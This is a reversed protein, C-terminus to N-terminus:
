ANRLFLLQIFFFIGTIYIFFFIIGTGKNTYVFMYYQSMFLLNRYFFFYIIIIYNIIIYVIVHIVYFTTMFFFDDFCTWTIIHDFLLVDDYINQFIVTLHHYSLFIYLFLFFHLLEWFMAKMLMFIFCMKLMGFHTNSVHITFYFNFVRAHSNKKWLLTYTPHRNLLKCSYELFWNMMAFLINKKTKSFISFFLNKTRIRCKEKWVHIYLRRVNWVIRLWVGGGFFDGVIHLNKVYVCVLRKKIMFMVENLVHAPRFSTVINCICCM